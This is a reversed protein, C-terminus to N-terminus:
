MGNHKLAISFLFANMFFCNNNLEPLSLSSMSSALFNPKSYCVLILVDKNKISHIRTVSTSDETRIFVSTKFLSMCSGVVNSYIM